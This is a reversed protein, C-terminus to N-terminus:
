FVVVHEELTVAETGLRRNKFRVDVIEDGGPGSAKRLGTRKAIQNLGSEHMHIQESRRCRHFTELKFRGVVHSFGVNAQAVRM